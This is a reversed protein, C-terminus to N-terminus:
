RWSTVWTTSAIRLLSRRGPVTKWARTLQGSAKGNVRISYTGAVPLEFALAPGLIPMATTYIDASVRLWRGGWLLNEILMNGSKKASYALKVQWRCRDALTNGFPENGWRRVM